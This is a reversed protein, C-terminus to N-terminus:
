VSLTDFAPLNTLYKIKTNLYKIKTKIKIYFNFGKEADQQPIIM